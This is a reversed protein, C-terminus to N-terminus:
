DPSLRVALMYLGMAVLPMFKYYIGFAVCVAGIARFVNEIEWNKM